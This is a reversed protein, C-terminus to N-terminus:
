NNRENEEIEKKAQVTIMRPSKHVRRTEKPKPTLKNFHGEEYEELRKFMKLTRNDPLKNGRHYNIEENIFYERYAEEFSLKGNTVENLFWVCAPPIPYQFTDWVHVM